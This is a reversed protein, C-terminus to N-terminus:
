KDAPKDDPKKEDAKDPKKEDAKPEDKPKPTEGEIAKPVEEDAVPAPAAEDAKVEDAKTEDVKEVKDGEPTTEKTTKGKCCSTLAFISVILLTLLLRM